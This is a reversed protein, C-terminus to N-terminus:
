KAMDLTKYSGENMSKSTSSSKSRSMSGITTSLDKSSDDLYKTPISFESTSENLYLTKVESDLSTRSDSRYNSKYSNRSSKKRKYWMGIIACMALSLLVFAGILFYYFPKFKSAKSENPLESQGTTTLTNLHETSSSDTSSDTVGADPDKTTGKSPKVFPDVQPKCCKDRYDHYQQLSNINFRWTTARYFGDKCQMLDRQVLGDVEVYGGQEIGNKEEHSTRYYYNGKFFYITRKNGIVLSAAADIEKPLGLWIDKLDSTGVLEHEDLSGGISYQFVTSDQIFVVECKGNNQALTRSEFAGDVQGDGFWLDKTNNSELPIVARDKILYHKQNCTFAADIHAHAIPPSVQSTRHVIPTANSDLTSLEYVFRGRFLQVNGDKTVMAADLDSEYCLETACGIWHSSMTHMVQGNFETPWNGNVRYLGVFQDFFAFAHTANFAALASPPSKRYEAYSTEKREDTDLFVQVDRGDKRRYNLVFRNNLKDGSHVLQVGSVQLSPFEKRASRSNLNEIRCITQGNRPKCYWVNDGRFYYDMGYGDSLIADPNAKERQDVRNTSSIVPINGNFMQGARLERDKYAIAFRLNDPAARRLTVDNPWLQNTDCVFDLQSSENITITILAILFFLYVPIM